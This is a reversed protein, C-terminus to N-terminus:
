TQFNISDVCAGKCLFLDGCTKGGGGELIFLKVFNNPHEPPLIIPNLCVVYVVIIYGGGM